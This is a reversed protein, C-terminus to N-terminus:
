WEACTKLFPLDAVRGEVVTLKLQKLEELNLHEYVYNILSLHKKSLSKSYVSFKQEYLEKNNNMSSFDIHDTIVGKGIRLLPLYLRPVTKIQFKDPKTVNSTSHITVISNAKDMVHIYLPIIYKDIGELVLATPYVREIPLVIEKDNIPDIPSIQEKNNNTDLLNTHPRLPLIYEFYHQDFKIYCTAAQTKVEDWYWHKTRIDYFATNYGLMRNFVFANDNTRM